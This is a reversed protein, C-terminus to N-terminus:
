TVVGQRVFVLLRITGYWEVEKSKAVAKGVEGGGADGDSSDTSSTHGTTEAGIDELNSASAAKRTHKLGNVDGSRGLHVSAPRPTTPSLKVERKGYTPTEGM